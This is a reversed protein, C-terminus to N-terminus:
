KEGDQKDLGFDQVVSHYAEFLEQSTFRGAGMVNQRRREVEKVFATLGRYILLDASIQHEVEKNLDVVKEQCWKEFQETM